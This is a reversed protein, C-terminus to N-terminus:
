EGDKRCSSCHFIIENKILKIYSVDETNKLKRDCESCTPAYKVLYNCLEKDEILFINDRHFQRKIALKMKYFINSLSCLFTYYSLFLKGM